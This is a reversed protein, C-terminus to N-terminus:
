EETRVKVDVRLGAPATFGADMDILVALVDLDKRESATRAFVTKRGMIERVAVVRGSYAAQGLGRGFVLAEQGAKIGRAHREDIEARVRLGRMDAFLIVPEADIMRQAEGVHKLVELVKGDFPARLATDHLRQKAQALRAQALRVKADALGRDEARVVNRLHDYEAQAAKLEAETEAVRNRATALDSRSVSKTPLLRHNREYEAQLYRLREAMLRVKQEGAAIEFPDMGAVMRARERRAVEVEQEAVAVAAKQERDDLTMLLDGKHVFDGVEVFSKEIVGDSKFVLRHVETRPEVYGAGQVWVGTDAHPTPYPATTTPDSGADGSPARPRPLAGLFAAGSLSLLALAPVCISKRM